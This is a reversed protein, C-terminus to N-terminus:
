TSQHPGANSNMDDVLQTISTIATSNPIRRQALNRLQRLRQEDKLVEAKWLFVADEVLSELEIDIIDTRRISDSFRRFRRRLEQNSRQCEPCHVCDADIYFGLVEYWHQQERAFFIFPRHCTRCRKLIDVYYGRPLVTFNQRTIEARIASEPFITESRYGYFSNRVEDASATCGSAVVTNGYRPHPVVDPIITARRKPM